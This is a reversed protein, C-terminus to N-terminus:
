SHLDDKFLDGKPWCLLPKLEVAWSDEYEFLMIPRPASM